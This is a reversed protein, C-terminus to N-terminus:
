NSGLYFFVQDLKHIIRSGTLYKTKVEQDMHGLPQDGKTMFTYDLRTFLLYILVYHLGLYSLIQNLQPIIRSRTLWKTKVKQDM